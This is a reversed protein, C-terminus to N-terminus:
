PSEVRVVQGLFDEFRVGIGGNEIVCLFAVLM